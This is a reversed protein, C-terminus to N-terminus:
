AKLPLQEIVSKFNFLWVGIINDFNEKNYAEVYRKIDKSYNKYFQSYFLYLVFNKEWETAQRKPLEEQFIKDIGNSLDNVFRDLGDKDIGEINKWLSVMKSYEVFSGNEPKYSRIEQRFIPFLHPFRQRLLEDTESQNIYNELLKNTRNSQYASFAVLAIIIVIAIDM